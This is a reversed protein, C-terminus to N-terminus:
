FHWVHHPTPGVTPKFIMGGLRIDTESVPYLGNCRIWPQSNAWQNESRIVRKKRFFSRILSKSLFVPLESMWENKTLLRLSESMTAWKQHTVQAIQKFRENKTLSRLSESVASMLFFPIFLDSM